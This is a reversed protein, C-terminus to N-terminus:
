FKWKFGLQLSRRATPGIKDYQFQADFNTLGDESASTLGLAAGSGCAKSSSNGTQECTYRPAFTAMATTNSSANLSVPMRVEPIIQLIKLHVKGADLSLTSDTSGHATGTFGVKGINTVGYSYSVTPRLEFTEMKYVGTINGGFTASTTSYSSDLSLTGNSLKLSNRNAGLSAFMDAYFGESLSQVVYGGVTAGYSNQSGSYTGKLTSRGVQGGIYYGLMSTSSLDTEFSMRGNLFGSVNNAADTQVDFDGSTVQRWKGNDGVDQGFFNGQAKGEVGSDTASVDATGDM